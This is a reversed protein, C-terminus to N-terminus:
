CVCVCVGVTDISAVADFVAVTDAIIFDALDILRNWSREEADCTKKTM